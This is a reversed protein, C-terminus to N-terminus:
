GNAAAQPLDNSSRGPGNAAKSRNNKARQERRAYEEAILEATRKKIRERRELSLGVMMEELTKTM